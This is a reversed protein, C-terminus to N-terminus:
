KGVLPMVIGMGGDFSFTAPKYGSRVFFLVNTLKSIPELTKPLFNVGDIEISQHPDDVKGSGECDECGDKGKPLVGEGDCTKCEDKYSHYQNDWEIIGMGRCEPCETIKGEGDCKSCAVKKAKIEPMPCLPVCDFYQKILPDLTIPPTDTIDNLRDIRIMVFGNTAYTYQDDSFPKSIPRDVEKSCFLLIQELTM